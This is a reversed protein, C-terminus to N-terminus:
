IEQPQLEKQAVKQRTNVCCGERCKRYNLVHATIMLLTAAPILYIANQEYVQASLLMGFGVTFLLLPLKNKHLLFCGKYFAAIGFVFSGLVTAGELWPNHLVSSGFLGFGSFFLPLAVCHLGCLLSVAIGMVDWQLLRLRM